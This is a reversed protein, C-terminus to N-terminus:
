IVRKTPDKKDSLGFQIGQKGDIQCSYAHLAPFGSNYIKKWIRYHLVLFKGKKDTKSIKGIEVDCAKCFQEPTMNYPKKTKEIKSQIARLGEPDLTWKEGSFSRTTITKKSNEKYIKDILSKTDEAKLVETQKEKPKEM